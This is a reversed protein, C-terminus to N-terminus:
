YWSISPAAVYKGQVEKALQLVFEGSQLNVIGYAWGHRQALAGPRAADYEMNLDCLCGINWATKGHPWVPITFETCAHTHGFCSTGYIEATQKAAYKGAHFGHLVNLNGLRYVGERKDYKRLECNLKKVRSEIRKVGDQAHDAIIGSAQEALRWLRIDHNGLLLVNPRFSELFIMGADFDERMSQAREFDEAKKRLPRFDWLDGAMIRIQPRYDKVFADFAAVAVPDQKDGHLDSCVAYRSYKM